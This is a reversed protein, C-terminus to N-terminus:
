KKDKVGCKESSGASNRSYKFCKSVKDFKTPRLLIRHENEWGRNKQNGGGVVIREVVESGRIV